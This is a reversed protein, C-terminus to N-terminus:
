SMGDTFKFSTGDKIAKILKVKGVVWGNEITGSGAVWFTQVTGTTSLPTVPRVSYTVKYVSTQNPM